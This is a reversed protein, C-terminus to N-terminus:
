KQNKLYEIANMAAEAGQYIAKAIQLMGDVCDGCAYIGPVNTEM